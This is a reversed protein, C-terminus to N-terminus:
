VTVTFIYRGPLITELTDYYSVIEGEPNKTSYLWWQPDTITKGTEAALNNLYKRMTDIVPFEDTLCLHYDPLEPLKMDSYITVDFTDTYSCRAREFTVMYTGASDVV